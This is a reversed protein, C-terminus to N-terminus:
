SFYEVGVPGGTVGDIEDMELKGLPGFPRLWRLGAKCTM